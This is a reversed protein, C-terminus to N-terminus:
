GLLGKDVFFKKTEEVTLFGDKESASIYDDLIENGFAISLFSFKGDEIEEAISFAEHIVALLLSHPPADPNKALFRNAMNGLRGFFEEKWSGYGAVEQFIDRMQEFLWSLPEVHRTIVYRPEPYFGGELNAQKSNTIIVDAGQWDASAGFDDNEVKESLRRLATLTENM